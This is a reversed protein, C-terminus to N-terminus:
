RPPLHARLAPPEAGGASGASARAPRSADITPPAGPNAHLGPEGDVATTARRRRTGSTGPKPAPSALTLPDMLLEFWAPTWPARSPSASAAATPAAAAAPRGDDLHQAGGVPRAQGWAAISGVPPQVEDVVRARHAAAVQPVDGPRRPRRVPRRPLPHVALRVRDRPETGDVAPLERDPGVAAQVRRPEVAVGRPEVVAAGVVVPRELRLLRQRGLFLAAHLGARRDRHAGVALDQDEPVGIRDLVGVAADIQRRGAVVALVELRRPGDAGGGLPRAAAAPQPRRGVPRARDVHRVAAGAVVHVAAHPQEGAGVAAAGEVVPQYLGPVDARAGTAM